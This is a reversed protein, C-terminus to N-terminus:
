PLEEFEILNERYLFQEPTVIVPPKLQFDSILNGIQRLKASNAIHKQNWTVLYDMQHIAAFAIHYADLAANPPVANASIFVRALLEVQDFLPLVPIGEIIESRLDAAKQDGRQIENVVTESVFLEFRERFGWLLRTQEQRFQNGLKESSKATLYSIVSSELYIKPRHM